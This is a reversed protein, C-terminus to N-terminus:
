RDLYVIYTNDKTEFRLCMEDNINCHWAVTFGFSNHSCIHFNSHNDSTLYEHECWKFANEKKQSYDTYVNSLFFGEYQEAKRLINQGAKTSAKLIKM